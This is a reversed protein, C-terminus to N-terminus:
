HGFQALAASFEFYLDLVRDDDPALQKALGLREVAIAKHDLIRGELLAEWYLREAHDSDNNETLAALRLLARQAVKNARGYDNENQLWGCVTMARRALVVSSPSAVQFTAANELQADTAAEDDGRAAAHARTVIAIENQVPDTATSMEPTALATAVLAPSCTGGVIYLLPRLSKM